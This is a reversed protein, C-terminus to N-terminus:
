YRNIKKRQTIKLSTGNEAIDVIGTVKKVLTKSKWAVKYCEVTLQLTRGDLWEWKIERYIDSNEGFSYGLYLDCYRRGSLHTNIDYVYLAQRETLGGTPSNDVVAVKKSDPSWQIDTVECVYMAVHPDDNKQQM